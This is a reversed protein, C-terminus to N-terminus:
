FNNSFFYLIEIQINVECESRNEPRVPGPVKNEVNALFEFDQPKAFWAEEKNGLNLEFAYNRSLVHPFFVFNEPLDSRPVSIADGQMEGNISYSIKVAEDNIDQFVSM